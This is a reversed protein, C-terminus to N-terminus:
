EVENNLFKWEPNFSRILEEKKSRRWGKIEKERDIAHEVFGFREYYILYYANYKGAFSSHTFPQAHHYYQALRTRLDNTVGVYLVTKNKNTTIYVFYNHTGIPKM